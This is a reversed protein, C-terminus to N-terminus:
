RATPQSRRVTMFVAGRAATVATTMADATVAHEGAEDDVLALAGAVGVVGAGAVV